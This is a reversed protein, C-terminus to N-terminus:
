TFIIREPSLCEEGLILVVEATRGERPSGSIDQALIRNEPKLIVMVMMLPMTQTVQHHDMMMFIISMIVEMLSFM